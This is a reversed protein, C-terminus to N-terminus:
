QYTKYIYMNVYRLHGETTATVDKLPLITEVDLRALVSQPVIAHSVGQTRAAVRVAHVDAM